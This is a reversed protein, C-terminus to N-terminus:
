ASTLIIDVVIKANLKRRPDVVIGACGVFSTQRVEVSPATM